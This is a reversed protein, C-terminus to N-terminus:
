AVITEFLRFRPAELLPNFLSLAPFLQNTQGRGGFRVHPEGAYSEGTLLRRISRFTRMPSALMKAIMGTQPHLMALWHAVPFGCEKLQGGPGFNSQLAPTDPMSFSSGDIIFVRFGFWKGTDLTATQLQDVCRRLLHFVELKIRLRAKCYGAATFHMGALRLM